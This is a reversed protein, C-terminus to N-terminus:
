GTLWFSLCRFLRVCGRTETSFFYTGRWHVAKNCLWSCACRLLCIDQSLGYQVHQYRVHSGLDTMVLASFPIVCLHPLIPVIEASLSFGTIRAAAKSGLYLFSFNKVGSSPMLSCPLTSTSATLSAFVVPVCSAFSCLALPEPLFLARSVRRWDSVSLKLSFSSPSDSSSQFIWTTILLTRSYKPSAVSELHHLSFSPRKGMKETCGQLRWGMPTSKRQLLSCRSEFSLSGKEM